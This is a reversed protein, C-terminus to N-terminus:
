TCADELADRLRKALEWTYSGIGARAWCCPQLELAVKM